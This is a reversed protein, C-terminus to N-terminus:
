CYVSDTVNCLDTKLVTVKEMWELAFTSALGSDGCEQGQM